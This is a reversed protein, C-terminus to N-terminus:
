GNTELGWDLSLNDCRDYDSLEASSFLGFVDAGEGTEGEKWM